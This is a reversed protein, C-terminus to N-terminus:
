NLANLAPESRAKLPGCTLATEPAASLPREAEATASKVCPSTAENEAECIPESDVVSILATVAASIEPKVASSTLASDVRWIAAIEADAIPPSVVVAAAASDCACLV